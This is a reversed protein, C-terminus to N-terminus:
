PTRSIIIQFKHSIGWEGLEVNVAFLAIDCCERTKPGFSIVYAENVRLELLMVNDGTLVM